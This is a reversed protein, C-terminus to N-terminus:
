EDVEDVYPKDRRDTITLNKVRYARFRNGTEDDIWVQIGEANRDIVIHLGDASYIDTRRFASIVIDRISM